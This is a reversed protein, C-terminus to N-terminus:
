GLVVSILPYHNKEASLMDSFYNEPGSYTQYYIIAGAQIISPQYIGIIDDAQVSIPVPLDYQYLNIMLTDQHMFSNNLTTASVVGSFNVSNRWILIRPMETHNPIITGGIIVSKISVNSCLFRIQKFFVDKGIYDPEPQRVSSIMAAMEFIENKPIFGHICSYNDVIFFYYRIIALQRQM